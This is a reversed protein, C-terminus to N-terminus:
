EQRLLKAKRNTRFRAQLEDCIEVLSKTQPEDIKAGTLDIKGTEPDQMAVQFFVGIKRRRYIRGFRLLANADPVREFVAAAARAMLHTVTLKRGTAARFAEIYDLAADMRLTLSGYVSPDYATRWTGLAIKRFTSLDREEDVELNPM